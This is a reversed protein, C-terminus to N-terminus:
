SIGPNIIELRLHGQSLYGHRYHLPEVYFVVSAVRQTGMAFFDLAGQGTIKQWDPHQMWNQPIKVFFVGPGDPPLQDRSNKLTNTITASSVETSELKCKTDGCRLQNQCIIELDYDHGRKGQPKVFRFAWQNIYLMKAIHLEAFGAEPNDAERLRSLCGQIGEIDKLNILCEALDIVRYNRIAEEETAGFGIKFISPKTLDPDFHKRLWDVGMAHRIIAFCLTFDSRHAEPIQDWLDVLQRVAENAEVM